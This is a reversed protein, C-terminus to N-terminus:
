NIRCVRSLSAFFFRDCDFADPSNQRSSSGGTPPSANTEGDPSIGFRHCSGWGVQEPHEPDNLGNPM